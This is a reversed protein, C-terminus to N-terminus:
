KFLRESDKLGVSSLNGARDEERLGIGIPGNSNCSLEEPEIRIGLTPNMDLVDKRGGKEM